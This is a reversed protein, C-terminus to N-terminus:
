RLAYRDQSKTSKMLAVIVLLYHIINSIYHINYLYTLSAQRKMLYNHAAFFIFSQLNFWLVSLLLIMQATLLVSDKGRQKIQELLLAFSISSTLLAKLLDVNSNLMLWTQLFISNLVSLIVFLYISFVIFKKLTSSKAICYFIICWCIYEVPSFIHYAPSTNRITAALVRTTSESIFTALMLVTVMKFEPSLKKFSMLGAIAGLLLLCLYIAFRTTLM